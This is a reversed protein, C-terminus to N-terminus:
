FWPKRGIIYVQEFEADSKFLYMVGEIAGIIAGTGFLLTLIIHISGERQLGRMFKHIGFAGGVIGAIACPVRMSRQQTGMLQPPLSWRPRQQQQPYGYGPMGGMEGAGPPMMQVGPPPTFGPQMQGPQGGPGMPMNGPGMPTMPGPMGGPGMPGTTGMGPFASPPPMGDMPGGAGPPMTGPPMQGPMMGPPMQGQMMGPPMQGPMMQGPMMGPPMQGPMMGPAMGPGGFGPGGPPMGNNRGGQGLQQLKSLFGRVGEQLGGGGQPMGGPPGWGPGMQGPMMGPQMMGPPMMGPPMMGPPMMGPQMGPPMMGPPMQGAQMQGPMTGPPMQGPMMGPEGMSPPMGPAGMPGNQMGPAMGPMWGPAGDGPPMGAPGPAWGPSPQMTGPSEGDGKGFYAQTVPFLGPTGPPLKAAMEMFNPISSAKQPAPDAPPGTELSHGCAACNEAGPPNQQQCQPCATM